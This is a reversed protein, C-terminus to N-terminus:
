GSSTKKRAEDYVIRSFIRPCPGTTSVQEWSTGDWEWTDGYIRQYYSGGFLVIKQREKDYAMAVNARAHPGSTSKLTWKYEDYAWTDGFYNDPRTWGGFLIMEGHAADYAMQQSGRASPGSVPIKKWSKGDWEWTDDQIAIGDSGGFIVGRNRSGDYAYGMGAREPGTIDLDIWGQSTVTLTETIDGHAPISASIITVMSIAVVSVILVAIIGKVKESKVKKRDGGLKKLVMKILGLGAVGSHIGPCGHQQKTNM